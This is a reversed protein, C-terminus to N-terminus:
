FHDVMGPVSYTPLVRAHRFQFYFDGIFQSESPVSIVRDIPPDDEIFAANLLPRAGFHLGLHWADLPTGAESRMSSTIMSQKYRYEAFREQFGFTLEDDVTNDVFIEKSLVAQEGLHAFAPWAFDFRTQRDWMRNRGEQYSVDARINVLGIVVCHEVFSKNFGVGQVSATVFGALDGLNPGTTGAVPNVNIRTSGGGLYESRWQATPMSVGFHSRVIETYRSGGRADRELLRQIQFATRIENITAATAESLDAYIGPFDANNPDEEVYFSDSVKYDAYSVSGTGETEYADVPGAVWQQNVSGIGVVPAKEGLPLDVADGKQAFPLCSSFYDPRKCRRQLVYDTYTDPGNGRDVVLSDQLNEDRFWENWILNYARHHLSNFTQAGVALTIPLGFYDSLSKELVDEEMQPVLFDTSDGPDTQEGNFKQWNEWILRNPVSFFFFDMFMNDMVPFLPTAMRAFSSTRLNMTDGPLAEDVFIPVLYGADFATKLGCSRDFSSRPIEASPIQAFNHQGKTVGGQQATGKSSITM